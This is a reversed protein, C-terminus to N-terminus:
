VFKFLRFLPKTPVSTFSSVFYLNKNLRLGVKIKYINKQVIYAFNINISIYSFIKIQKCYTQQTSYTQLLPIIIQLWLIDFVASPYLISYTV